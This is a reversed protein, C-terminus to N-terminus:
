KKGKKNIFLFIILGIGAYLLINENMGAIIGPENTYNSATNVESQTTQENWFDIFTIDYKKNLIGTEVEQNVANGLIKGAIPLYPAQLFIGAAMGGIKLLGGLIDFADTKNKENEFDRKLNTVAYNWAEKWHQLSLNKANENDAKIFGNGSIYKHQIRDLVYVDKFMRWYFARAHFFPIVYLLNDKALQVAEDNKIFEPLENFIQEIFQGYNQSNNSYSKFESTGKEQDSCFSSENFSKKPTKYEGYTFLWQGATEDTVAKWLSSYKAIGNKEEIGADHWNGFFYEIPNNFLLGRLRNKKGDDRLVNVRFTMYDGPM